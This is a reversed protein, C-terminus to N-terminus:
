GRERSSEALPTKATGVCRAKADEALIACSFVIEVFKAYRVRNALLQCFRNTISFGSACRVGRKICLRQHSREAVTLATHMRYKRRYERFRKQAIPVCVSIRICRYLDTGAGRACKKCEPMTQLWIQMYSMVLATGYCLRTPRKKSALYILSWFMLSMNRQGLLPCKKKSKSPRRLM